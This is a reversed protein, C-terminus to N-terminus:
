TTFPNSNTRTLGLDKRLCASFEMLKKPISTTRRSSQAALYTTSGMTASTTTKESTSNIKSSTAMTDVARQMDRTSSANTTTPASALRRRAISNTSRPLFHHRMFTTSTITPAPHRGQATSRAHSVPLAQALTSLLRRLNDIRGSSSQWMTTCSARPIGM